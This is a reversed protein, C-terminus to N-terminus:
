VKYSPLREVAIDITDILNDIYVDNFVKTIMGKKNTLYIDFLDASNVVLHILGKHLHGNVQWRLCFNNIKTWNHCGWSWVIQNRGLCKVLGIMDDFPRHGSLFANTDITEGITNM